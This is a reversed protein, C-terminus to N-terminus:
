VLWGTVVNIGVTEIATYNDGWKYIRCRLQQWSICMWKVQQIDNWNSLDITPAGSNNMYSSEYNSRGKMRTM